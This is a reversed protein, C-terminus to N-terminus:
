GVPTAPPQIGTNPRVQHTCHKFSERYEERTWERHEMRRKSKQMDRAFEAIDKPTTDEDDVMVATVCGCPRIGVYFRKKEENSM